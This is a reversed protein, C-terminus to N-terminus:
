RSRHTDVPSSRTEELTRTSPFGPLSVGFGTRCAVTVRVEAPVGVPAALGSANVVVRMDLCDVGSEQLTRTATEKAVTVAEAPRRQASAARAAQAAAGAVSQEAMVMQGLVIVLGVFMLLGPIVIAAEISVALGRESRRRPTTSHEPSSFLQM